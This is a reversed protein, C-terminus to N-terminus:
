NGSESGIDYKPRLSNSIMAHDLMVDYNLTIVIDRSSPSAPKGIRTLREKNSDRLLQVFRSYTDDPQVHNGRRTLQCADLTDTIVHRLATVIEDAGELQLQRGMEALSFVHELNDLDLEVYYSSPRLNDIWKFVREFSDHRVEGGGEHLLRAKTLFDRLLPAGTHVSAGAGLVYMTRGTIQSM